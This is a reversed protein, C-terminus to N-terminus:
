YLFGSIITGIQTLKYNNIIVIIARMVAGYVLYRRQAKLASPVLKM